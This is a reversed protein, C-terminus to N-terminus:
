PIWLQAVDEGLLGKETLFTVNKYKSKKVQYRKLPESIQFVPTSSLGWRHKPVNLVVVVPVENGRGLM